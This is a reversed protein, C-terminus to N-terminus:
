GGLPDRIESVEDGFSFDLFGVDNGARFAQASEGDGEFLISYMDAILSQVTLGPSFLDENLIPLADLAGGFAQTLVEDREKQLQERLDMQKIIRWEINQFREKIDQNAWDRIQRMTTAISLDSQHTRGGLRSEYYRSTNLFGGRYSGYGTDDEEQSPNNSDVSIPAVIGGNPYLSSFIAEGDGTEDPVQVMDPMMFSSIDLPNGGQAIYARLLKELNSGPTVSFGVREETAEISGDENRELRYLVTLFGIREIEANLVQIRPQITRRNKLIWSSFARFYGPPFVSLKSFSSM